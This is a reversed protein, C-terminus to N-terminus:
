QVLYKTEMEEYSGYRLYRVNSFGLEQAVIASQFGKRGEVDGYLLIAHDHKRVEYPLATTLHKVPVNVANHYHGAAYEEPSRVDVVKSIWGDNLLERAEGPALSQIPPRFFSFLLVLSATIGLIILGAMLWPDAM